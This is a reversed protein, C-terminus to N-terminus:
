IKEKDQIKKLFDFNRNDRWDLVVLDYKKTAENIKNVDRVCATTSLIYKFNPYTKRLYDELLPSNVLVENMGNNAIEMTLNCMTDQLHKEEVLTNTYTFRVAIGFDNLTKITSKIEELAPQVGRRVRGGNWIMNNFSGYVAPVDINDMFRYSFKKMYDFFLSYFGQYQLDLGPIFFHIKNRGDYVRCDSNYIGSADKENLEAETEGKAVFGEKVFTEYFEIADSIITEKDAGVFSKLITDALTEISQPDKSLACLFVSGSENVIKESYNEKSLIYAGHETKRILVDKKQRYLM